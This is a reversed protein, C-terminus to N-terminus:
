SFDYQTTEAHFRECIVVIDHRAFLGMVYDVPKQRRTELFTVYTKIAPDYSRTATAPRTSQALAPLALSVVVIFAAMRWNM